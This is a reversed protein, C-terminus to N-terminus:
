VTQLREAAMRAGRINPAMTGLELEALPGTVHLGECWRLQPDVIPYGCLACRLRPPHDDSCKSQNNKRLKTKPVTGLLALVGVVILSWRTRKPALAAWGLLAIPVGFFAPILATISSTGTLVRSAIGVIILLIGIEITIAPAKKSM